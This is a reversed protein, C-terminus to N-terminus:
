YDVSKVRQHSDILLLKLMRRGNRNFLARIIWILVKILVRPVRGRLAQNLAEFAVLVDIVSKDRLNSSELGSTYGRVVVRLRQIVQERLSLDRVMHYRKHFRKYGYLKERFKIYIQRHRVGADQSQLANDSDVPELFLDGGRRATELLKRLYEDRVVVLSTGKDLYKSLWADGVSIDACEAFVDDCFDCAKPKFMGLGYDTAILDKNFSEYKSAETKLVVKKFNAPYDTDKERFAFGKTTTRDADSKLQTTLFDQYLFSKQGGCVIGIYINKRNYLNDYNRIAKIFCPVGIIAMRVGSEIDYQVQQLSIPGYISTPSSLLDEECSFSDYFYKGQSHNGSLVIEVAKIKLLERGLWRIVGGSSSKSYLNEELVRSAFISSYSGIGDRHRLRNIILSNIEDENKSISTFPCFKDENKKPLNNDLVRAVLFGHNNQYISYRSPNEVACLGCGICLDNSIVDDIDFMM